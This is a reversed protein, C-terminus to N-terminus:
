AKGTLFVHKWSDCRTDWVPTVPWLTWQALVSNQAWRPTKNGLSSQVANASFFDVYQVARCAKWFSLIRQLVFVLAFAAILLAIPGPM